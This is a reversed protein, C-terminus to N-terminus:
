GVPPGSDRASSAARPGRHVSIVAGGASVLLRTASKKLLMGRFRVTRAKGVVRVSSAHFTGNGLKRASVTVRQGVALKAAVPTQVLSVHKAAGAVAVLHSSRQVKLVVGSALATSPLAFAAVAALAIILRRM